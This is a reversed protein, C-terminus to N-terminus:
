ARKDKLLNDYLVIGAALGHDLKKNSLRYKFYSTRLSELKALNSEHEALLKHEINYRDYLDELADIEKGFKKELHHFHDHFLTAMFWIFPFNDYDIKSKGFNIENHLNTRNFIAAGFFLVSCIHEPYRLDDLEIGANIIVDKKGGRKFYKTIFQRFQEENLIPNDFPNEFPHGSHGEYYYWQERPLEKYLSYLSVM